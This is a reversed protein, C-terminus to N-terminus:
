IMSWKDTMPVSRPRYTIGVEYNNQMDFFYHETVERSRLIVRLPESYEGRVYGKGEFKECPNTNYFEIVYYKGDKIYIRTNSGMWDDEVEEINITDYYKASKIWEQIEQLTM